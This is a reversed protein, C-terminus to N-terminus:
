TGLLAIELSSSDGGTTAGANLNGGSSQFAFAEVYDGVALDVIATTDLRLLVSGTHPVVSVGSGPVDSGNKRIVLIRDGTTNGVAYTTHGHVLYKGAKGTPITMRSTNASTSHYGDTDYDETDFTLATDTTNPISQTGNNYARAGAFAAASVSAPVGPIGTHDHADHAAEDFTESGGVGPIGAHDWLDHNVDPM